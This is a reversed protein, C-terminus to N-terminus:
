EIVFTFRGAAKNGARDAVAIELRAPGPAHSAPIPIDVRRRFEDWECVVRVGDLSATVADPDIGSGDERVPVYYLARKFFGSGGTKRTSAVERLRPAERDAFLAYIGPRRIEVSGGEREPIGVCRWGAAGLWRYVGAGRGGEVGCLIPRTARELAFDLSFPRGVPLLGGSPRPKRPAERAILPIPGAASQGSLKLSVGDAVSFSSWAGHGLLLAPVDYSRDLAAGTPGTGRLRLRSSGGAFATTDVFAVYERPAIQSLGCSDEGRGGALLASPAAALIRDVVIRARLGDAAAEFRCECSISDGRASPGPFAVYREVRAGEDDVASCRYLTGDGERVELLAAGGREASASRRWTAGGDSSEDITLVASGGDPDSTSIEVADASGASRAVDIVPYRHLVFGFSARAENGRADRAVIEGRHYGEALTLRGAGPSGAPSGIAGTGERNEMVNGPKRFLLLYRGPSTGPLEDYELVVDGIRAYDVRKNTIRYALAGDISLEVSHPGLRYGGAGQRDWLSVGFGFAGDLQLTDALAYRDDRLFRFRRTVPLPSGDVVSGPALPVVELAAIVPAEADPVEYLSDLPDFPREAADRMEFHLHPHPSGSAGTFAVVSGGDFRLGNSRLDLDCWNKGSALRRSYALSDLQRNFGALHAFVTVTGDGLRLYLAKGYGKASIRLRTVESDGIARCPLGLRGFTRLDIGAHYHGERYEGFSSSLRRPTELPWRWREKGAAPPGAAVTLAVILCWTKTRM